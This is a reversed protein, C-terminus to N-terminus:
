DHIPPTWPTADWIALSADNIVAALRRGDPSFTLATVGM